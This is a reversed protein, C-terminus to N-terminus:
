WKKYKKDREKREKTYKKNAKKVRKDCELCVGYLTLTNVDYGTDKYDKNCWM